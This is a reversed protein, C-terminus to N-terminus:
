AEEDRGDRVLEVLETAPDLQELLVAGGGCELVRVTGAGQFARLVDGSNWEDGDTKSIKLVVHNRDCSGFGLVSRETERCEVLAVNWQEARLRLREFLPTMLEIDLPGHRM